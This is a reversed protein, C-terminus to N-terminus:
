LIPPQTSLPLFASRSHNFYPLCLLTPPSPPSMQPGQLRYVLRIEDEVFVLLAYPQSARDNRLTCAASFLYRLM